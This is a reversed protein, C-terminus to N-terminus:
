WEADDDGDDADGDEEIGRRALTAVALASQSRCCRCLPDRAVRVQEAAAKSKDGAGTAGYTRGERGERGECRGARRVPERDGACGQRGAGGQPDPAARVDPVPAAHRDRLSPAACTNTIRAADTDSLVTLESAPGYFEDFTATIAPRPLWAQGGTGDLDYEQDAFFHETSSPTAPASRVRPSFSTRGSPRTGSLLRGAHYAGSEASGPLADGWWQRYSRYPELYGSAPDHFHLQYDSDLTWLPAEEQDPVFLGLFLNVANQKDADAARVPM